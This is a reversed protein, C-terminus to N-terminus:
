RERLEKKKKVQKILMKKIDINFKEMFFSTLKERVGQFNNKLDEPYLDIFYIDEISSFYKVKKLTKHYYNTLRDSSQYNTKTFLGFYEIVIRKKLLKKENNINIEKIIFDPCLKREKNDETYKFINDGSREKGINIIYEFNLDRKIYEYVLMEQKSGCTVGDYAICVDFDSSKWIDKYEPFSECAWNYFSQFERYAFIGIKKCYYDVVTRNLYIPIDNKLDIIIDNMRYLVLERLINILNERNYSGDAITYWEWDFLIKNNKIQPYTEVLLEYQTTKINFGINEYIHKLMFNKFIWEKLKDRDEIVNLISIECMTECYKKVMIKRNDIDNIFGDYKFKFDFITISENTNPHKINNYNFYWIFMAHISCFKMVYLNSMKQNFITTLSCSKLIELVSIHNENIWNKIIDSMNDAHYQEFDRNEFNIEPFCKILMDDRSNFINNNYVGNLKWESFRTTIFKECIEAKTKFGLINIIAHRVIKIINDEEFCFDPMKPITNNFLYEYWKEPSLEYVDVKLNIGYKRYTKRMAYNSNCKKCQYLLGFRETEKSTFFDNTFPFIEGCDRCKMFEPKLDLPKIYKYVEEINNGFYIKLQNYSIYGNKNSLDQYSPYKGNNECYRIIENILYKGEIDLNCYNEEITYIKNELIREVENNKLDSFKILKEQYIYEFFEIYSIGMTQNLGNLNYENMINKLGFKIADHITSINKEQRLKFLLWEIADNINIENWFDHPMGTNKLEWRKLNFEPFANYLVEFPDANIRITTLNYTRLMDFQWKTCLENKDWILINNILYKMLYVKYVFVNNFGDPFDLKKGNRITDYIFVVEEETYNKMNKRNIKLRRVINKIEKYDVGYFDMLEEWSMIRYLKKFEEEKDIYWPKNKIKDLETKFKFNTKINNCERCKNHLKDKYSSNKSYFMSHAPLERKCYKCKKLQINPNEKLIIEILETIEKEECEKCM